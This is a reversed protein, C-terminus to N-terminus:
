AKAELFNIANALMRVSLDDMDRAKADGPEVRDLALNLAWGGFETLFTLALRLQAVAGAVTTPTAKCLTAEAAALLDIGPYESHGEYILCVAHWARWASVAPDEPAVCKSAAISESVLESSIAPADFRQGTIPACDAQLM